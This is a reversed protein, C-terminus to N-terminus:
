IRKELRDISKETKNLLTELDDSMSQSPAFRAFDCRSLTDKLNDVLAQDVGRQLLHEEMSDKTLGAAPINLKDALFESLASNIEAYFETSSEDKMLQRARKLRRAAQTKARKRRVYAADTRVKVLHRKYTWAGILAIVPVIQLFLFRMNKYLPRGQDELQREAGRYDPKIYRIDEGILKIEERSLGYGASVKETELVPSISLSLPSTQTTMYREKAPDFYSFEFPAILLDGDTEPILVYEFTKTGQIIGDVAKSEAEIKPDYVKFSDLLPSKLERISTVNGAGSIVVKLSIADGKTATKLDTSASISFDGVPVDFDGTKGRQPLPLVEVDIPDSQVLLTKTRSSFGGFDFISTSRGRVQIDCEIKLPEIRFTGPAKPFVAVKKLLAVEFLRNDIAERRSELYSKTRFDFIDEVRFDQYAPAANYRLDSISFRNYLDYSLTIQEGVYARERDATVEMYLNGEIPIQSGRPTRVTETTGEVVQIQIPRSEYEVAKVKMKVPGIVLRGSRLPRLIYTFELKQESVLSGGTSFQYSSSSSRVPASVTFNNLTPLVPDPLSGLKSGSVSVILKLRDTTGIKNKDVYAQFSVDATYAPFSVSLILICFVPILLCYITAGCPYLRPGGGSLHLRPLCPLAGSAKGSIRVNNVQRTERHIMPVAGEM